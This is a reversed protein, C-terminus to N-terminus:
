SDDSTKTFRDCFDYRSAGGMVTQSRTREIRTPAITTSGDAARDRFHDM